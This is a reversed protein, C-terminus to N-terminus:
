CWALSCGKLCYESQNQDWKSQRRRVCYMVIYSGPWDLISFHNLQKPILTYVSYVTEYSSVLDLGVKRIHYPDKKTQYWDKLLVCRYLSIEEALPVIKNLSPKIRNSLIKLILGFRSVSSLLPLSEYALFPFPESLEVSAKRRGVKGEM